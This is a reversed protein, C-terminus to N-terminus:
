ATAIARRNWGFGNPSKSIQYEAARLEGETLWSYFSRIRDTTASGPPLDDFRYWGGDWFEVATTTTSM